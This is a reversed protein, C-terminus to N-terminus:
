LGHSDLLSLPSVLHRKLWSRFEKIGFAIGMLETFYFVPLKKQRSNKQRMELNVHCMPCATVIADAGARRAADTLDSVMRYAIDRKSLSLGGGCCDVKGPWDKVEAGISSLLADLCQPNEPDDFAVIEPPRVLYCGYYAVLKLGKLPHTVKNKLNELGVDNVIIDLLHRTNCKSEYPLGTIRSLDDRLASNHKVDNQASRLRLYCAPCAVAIDRGMSEALALNRGALGLALMPNTSHGSSAGCCSWGDFEILEIGLRASVARLSMDYERATSELSCGPYYVYKLEAIRNSM